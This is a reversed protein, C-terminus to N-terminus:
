PSPTLNIPPINTDRHTDENLLKKKRGSIVKDVVLEKYRHGNLIDYVRNKGGKLVDYKDDVIPLKM